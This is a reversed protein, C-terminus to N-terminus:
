VYLFYREVIWPAKPLWFLQSLFGDQSKPGFFDFSGVVCSSYRRIVSEDKRTTSKSLVRSYTLWILYECSSLTHGYNHCEAILVCFVAFDCALWIFLHPLQWSRSRVVADSCVWFHSIYVGFFTLRLVNAGPTLLLAKSILQTLFMRSNTQFRLINIQLCNWFTFSFKLLIYCM